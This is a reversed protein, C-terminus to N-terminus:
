GGDSALPAEGGDPSEGVVLSESAVVAGFPACMVDRNSLVECRWGSGADPADGPATVTVTTGAGLGAGALFAALAVGFDKPKKEDAM